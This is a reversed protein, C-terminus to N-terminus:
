KLSDLYQQHMFEMQEESIPEDDYEEDYDPQEDMVGPNSPDYGTAPTVLIQPNSIPLPKRSENRKEVERLISEKWRVKEQGALEDYLGMINQHSQARLIRKVAADNEPISTDVRVTPSNMKGIWVEDTVYPLVRRYIAKAENPGELMPEIIVSTRCGRMFALMLSSLREHPCPANPEWFRSVEDNLSTITFMFTIQEKYREFIFSIEDVCEYHAKTTLLIENGAAILKRILAIHYNLHRPEIDHATPYMVVGDFRPYDDKMAGSYSRSLGPWDSRIRIKGTQLCKHAAYCYICNHGCGTMINMSQDSIQRTGVGTRTHTLTSMDNNELGENNKHPLAPLPTVIAAVAQNWVAHRNGRTPKGLILLHLM